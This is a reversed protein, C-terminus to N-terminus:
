AGFTSDTTLNVFNRASRKANKLVHNVVEFVFPISNKMTVFHQASM